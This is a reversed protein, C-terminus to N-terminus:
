RPATRRADLPSFGPRRRRRPAPAEREEPERRGPDECGHARAVDSVIAVRKGDPSVSPYSDTVLGTTLPEEPGAPAGGGPELLIRTLNRASEQEPTAIRLGDGTVALELFDSTMLSVTRPLPPSPITAAELFQIRSGGQPGAHHLVPPGDLCGLRSRLGPLLVRPKGGRVADAPPRGAANRSQDVEREPLLRDPLARLHVDREASDRASTGREFVSGHDRPPKPARSMSSPLAMPGGRRSIRTRRWAGRRAESPPFSGSIAGMLGCTAASRAGIRILGTKSSRTSIFAM